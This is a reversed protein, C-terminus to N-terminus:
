GSVCELLRDLNKVRKNERDWQGQLEQEVEVPGVQEVDMVETVRLAGFDQEGAIRPLMGEIRSILEPDPDTTAALEEILPGLAPDIEGLDQLYEKGMALAERVEVNSMNTIDVQEEDLFRELSLLQDRLATAAARETAAEGTVQVQGGSSFIQEGSFERDLAELLLNEDNAAIYGSEFAREAMGALTEGQPMVLKAKKRDIRRDFQEMKDADRAALEGGEDLQLGGGEVVFDALSPGFAQRPTPIDGGRLRDLLPDFDIDVDGRVAEPAPGFIGLLWQSYLETATIAPGGEESNRKAQTTFVSAMLTAKNEAASQEIGGDLLQVLVDNYVDSDWEGDSQMMQAIETIEDPTNKFFENAENLSMQNENAKLDPILARAHETDALEMTFKSLPIQLDVRSTRAEELNKIGLDNAIKAPDEGQEQFYEVFRDADILVNEVPGDRELRAVFQRYMEPVEKRTTSGEAGDLMAEFVHRTARAQRARRMDGVYASGPGVTSFLFAGKLTMSTIEALQDVIEDFTAPAMEPTNDGAERAQTKLREGFYINSSEQLVETLVEGGYAQGFRGALLATAGRMSPKAMVAGVIAAGAKRRATSVGPIFRAGMSIGLVELGANILGVSNAAGLAVDHDFGMELYEDYALGREITFASEAFGTTMGVVAGRGAGFLGGPVAGVGLAEPTTAAGLTAGLALGIPVTEASRRLGQMIGAGMMPLQRATEILVEIALNDEGFDGGAMMERLDAMREEDNAYTEGRIRRDQIHALEVQANGADSALGIRTTSREIFGMKDFDDQLVSLSRPNEAAYSRWIPTDKYENENYANRQVLGELNDLDADIVDEPLGTAGAVDIIRIARGRDFQQENAVRLRLGEEEEREAQQFPSLQGRQYKRLQM